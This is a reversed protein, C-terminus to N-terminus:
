PTTSGVVVDILFEVNGFPLDIPEAGEAVVPTPIPPVASMSIVVVDKFVASDLLTQQYRVVADNSTARGAIQLKDVSQTLSTIEIATPDFQATAGMVLPWNVGSPVTVSLITSALQNVAAIDGTLKVMDASLTTTSSMATRVSLIETELRAVDNRVWNTVFMLPILVVGLALVVLWLVVQVRLSQLRQVDQKYQASNPDVMKYQQM